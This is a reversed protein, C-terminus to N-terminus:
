TDCRSSVLYIDGKPIRLMKKDIFVWPLVQRTLIMSTLLATVVEGAVAAELEEAVQDWDSIPTGELEEM